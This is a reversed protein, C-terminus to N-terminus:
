AARRETPRAAAIREYLAATRKAISAPDHWREAFQRSLAGQRPLEVRRVTLWEKLVDYISKPTANVIPLEGRMATPLCTLDSERVYCIVPRGLAMLELALGGYWGVLLQDVLLDAREYLRQAEAHSLNEVLQFEFEVGERRLREVADVLFQTGKMARNTPAHLVVPPRGDALPPAVRRAAHVDLNAYPLFAADKPLVHLLDPNLAFIQDAYRGVTAIQLRKRRDSEPTYAHPAHDAASIEFRDRCIDGQRADNGQYTMVVGIGRRKLWGLDRQEFIVGYLRAIWRSLTSRPDDASDDTRERQPLLTQGFNLHVVDFARFVRRIFRWRKKERTWRSDAATWLQEDTEFGFRGPRFEVTRSNLGLAREAAALGQAHGGINAPCHLVRLSRTM